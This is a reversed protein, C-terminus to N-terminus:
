ETKPELWTIKENEPFYSLGKQIEALPSEWDKVKVVFSGYEARAESWFSVHAFIKEDRWCIVRYTNGDPHQINGLEIQEM